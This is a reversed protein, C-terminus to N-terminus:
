RTCIHSGTRCGFSEAGKPLKFDFQQTVARAVPVGDQKFPKFRWRHIANRAAFGFRASPESSVIHVDQVRGNENVVFSLVAHGSRGRSLEVEPYVPKPTHIPAGGTYVPQAPQQVPTATSPGTDALREENSTQQEAM